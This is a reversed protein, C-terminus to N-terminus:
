LLNETKLEGSGFVLSSKQDCNIREGDDNDYVNWMKKKMVM